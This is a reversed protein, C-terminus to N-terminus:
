RAMRRQFPVLLFAHVRIQADRTGEDPTIKHGYVSGLNGGPSANYGNGSMRSPGAGWFIFSVITATIIIGWLIWGSHKRITGIM